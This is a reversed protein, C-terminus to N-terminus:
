MRYGSRALTWFVYWWPEPYSEPVCLSRADWGSCEYRVALDEVLQRIIAAQVRCAEEARFHAFWASVSLLRPAVTNRRKELERLQRLVEALSQQEGDTLMDVVLVDAM